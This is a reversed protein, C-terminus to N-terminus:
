GKTGEWREDRIEREYKVLNYKERFGRGVIESDDESKHKRWHVVDGAIGRLPTWHDSGEDSDVDVGKVGYFPVRETGRFVFLGM